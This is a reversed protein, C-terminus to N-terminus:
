GPAIRQRLMETFVRKKITQNTIAPEHHWWGDNRMDVAAQVFRDAVEAFDTDTYNHAFIFRATGVWSLALGQARLYYQYMWNYRGPQTYILIWVSAVNHIELPLSQERFCRNLQASREDWVSIARASEDRFADSVAYRLFENMSAMVYPHSNFTGRAFCIDTPTRDKFRRMLEARGCLVGVPLGGGVTKGYTVLDAQVDYYEQAGGPGLRFGVFVEDFILVIGRRTCVERLSKLWRTYGARDFEASRDSGVLMADSSASRNPHLAQLPNVLVCAIDHRTDLVKLSDASNDKLLYVDDSRRQGGVGPQVGDWWGHYAGCFMVLHSRGTHYRALGVAQMVAETGSMHFSVQDLGSLQRLYAVNEAIVPHYPGLVPGLAEVREMGRRICTKYFDYGLLNVGYSGGLDYAWNGDLDQIQVGRSATAVTPLQLHEKVLARYQFPVRYANTFALDSVSDELCRSFDLSRQSAERLESGLRQFGCRRKAVIAAPANDAAFAQAMSYEYYPVLKALRRSIKSHGGISPHKAKSLRLRIQLKRAIWLVAAILLLYGPIELNM